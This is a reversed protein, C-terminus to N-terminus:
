LDFLQVRRLSHGAAVSVREQLNTKIFNVCYISSIVWMAQLSPKETWNELPSIKPLSSQLNQLGFKQWTIRHTLMCM